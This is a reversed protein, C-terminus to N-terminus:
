RTSCRPLGDRSVQRNGCPDRPPADFASDVFSQAFFRKGRCGGCVYATGARHQLLVYLSMSGDPDAGRAVGLFLVLFHGSANLDDHDLEFPLTTPTRAQGPPAVVVFSLSLQLQRNYDTKNRAILEREGSLYEVMDGLVGM